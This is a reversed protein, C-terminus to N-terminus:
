LKIREAIATLEDSTPAPPTPVPDFNVGSHHNTPILHIHVHPVEFGKVVVGVRDVGMVTRLHVAIKQAIKWLYAYEDYDLDWLQDIQRKPVVLTHGETFPNITLFSIVRDDEYIKHCPIEGNIIKTYVSPEPM